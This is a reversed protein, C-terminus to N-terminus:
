IILPERLGQSPNEFEGLGVYQPPTGEFAKPVEGSGVNVGFLVVGSVILLLIKSKKM